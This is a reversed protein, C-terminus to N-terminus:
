LLVLDLVQEFDHFSCDMPMSCRRATQPFDQAGVESVRCSIPCVAPLSCPKTLM